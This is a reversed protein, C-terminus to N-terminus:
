KKFYLYANVEATKNLTNYFYIRYRSFGIQQNSKECSFYDSDGNKITCVAEIPFQIQKSEKFARLIPEEDPVMLVGISGSLFTTSKIEGQLYLSVSTYGDTEVKIDHLLESLENRRSPSLLIGERKITKSTGEISVSGKIQQTEPFNNVRVEDGSHAPLPQMIILLSLTIFKVIVNISKNLM